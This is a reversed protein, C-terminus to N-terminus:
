RQAPPKPLSGPLLLPGQSSKMGPAVAAPPTGAPASTLPGQSLTIRECYMEITVRRIRDSGAEQADPTFGFIGLNGLSVTLLVEKLDPALLELVGARERDQGNNGKVAFDNFWDYFPGAQSEALQIVLNSIEMRGSTKQGGDRTAGVDVSTAKQKISLAEIKSVQRCSEELGQIRLRFNAPVWPKQRAANVAAANALGGKASVLTTFAPAFKVTLYSAEKSAADCVPLTIETLVAESFQLRRSEKYTLDATVIAGNKRGGPQTLAAAIWDFMPKPMTPPVEMEIDTYRLSALHKTPFPSSANPADTVVDARPYGGDVYRLGYQEPKGDLELLFHGGSYTRQTAASAGTLATPLAYLMAGGALSAAWQHFERRTPENAAPIPHHPHKM